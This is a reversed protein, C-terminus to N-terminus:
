LDSKTQRRLIQTAIHLLIAIGTWILWNSLPGATYPFTSTWGLNAALSWLAFAYGSFVAPGLLVAVASASQQATDAAWLGVRSFTTGTTQVIGATWARAPARVLAVATSRPESMKNNTGQQFKQHLSLASLKRAEPRKM